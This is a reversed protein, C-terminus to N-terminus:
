HGPWIVEGEGGRQDASRAADIAATLSPAWENLATVFIGKGSIRISGDALLREAHVLRASDLAASALQTTLADLAKEQREILNAARWIMEGYPLSRHDRPGIQWSRDVARLSELLPVEAATTDPLSMDNRPQHEDTLDM